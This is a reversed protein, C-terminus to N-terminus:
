TESIAFRSTPQVSESCPHVSSSSLFYATSYRVTPIAPDEWDRFRWQARCAVIRLNRSPTIMVEITLPLSDLFVLSLNALSTASARLRSSMSLRLSDVSTERGAIDHSRSHTYVSALYNTTREPANIFNSNVEAHSASTCPSSWRFVLHCSGLM